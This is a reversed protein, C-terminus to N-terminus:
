VMVVQSHPYGAPPTYTVSLYHPLISDRPMIEIYGVEEMSADDRYVLFSCLGARNDWADTVLATIDKNYQGPDNIYGLSIPAPTGQKEGGGVAWGNGTSYDNWTVEDEVWDTRGCRAAFWEMGPAGFNNRTVFWWVASQITSGAPIFALLDFLVIAHAAVALEKESLLLGAMLDGVGDYNTDPNDFDLWSDIDCDVEVVAM